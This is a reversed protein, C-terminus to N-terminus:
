RGRTILGRGERRGGRGEGKMRRGGGGVRGEGISWLRKGKGRSEEADQYPVAKGKEQILPLRVLHFGSM